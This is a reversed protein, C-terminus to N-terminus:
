PESAPSDGGRVARRGGFMHITRTGAIVRGSIRTGRPIECEQGACVETVKGNITLTYCGEVVIFYEDFPHVHEETQADQSCEWFAVQTGDAGDFVYGEVGTTHQATAAIRNAVHKMFNPFRGM